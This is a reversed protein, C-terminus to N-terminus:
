GRGDMWQIVAEPMIWPWAFSTLTAIWAGNMAGAFLGDLGRSLLGFMVGLSMWLVFWCGAVIFVRRMLLRDGERGSLAM